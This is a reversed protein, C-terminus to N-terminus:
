KHFRDELGYTQILKKVTLDIRSLVQYVEEDIEDLPAKGEDLATTAANIVIDQWNSLTAKLIGYKKCIASEDDDILNEIVIKLKEYSDYKKPM